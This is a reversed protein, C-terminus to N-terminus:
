KLYRGFISTKTVLNRLVDTTSLHWLIEAAFSPQLGLSTLGIPSGKARAPSLEPVMGKEPKSWARFGFFSAPRDDVVLSACFNRSAFFWMAKM